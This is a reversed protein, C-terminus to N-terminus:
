FNRITCGMVEYKQGMVKGLKMKLIQCKPAVTAAPNGPTKTPASKGNACPKPHNLVVVPQNPSPLTVAQDKRLPMLQLASCDAPGGLLKALKSKSVTKTKKKNKGSIGVRVRKLSVTLFKPPNEPVPTAGAPNPSTTNEPVPPSLSPGPSDPQPPPTWTKKVKVNKPPARIKLVKVRKPPALTKSVDVHKPPALNNDVNVQEPPSHTKNIQVHQPPTLTNVEVQQPPALTTNVEVHEPPAWNKVVKDHEPPSYTKIQIQEPPSYTQNVQIQEPPSYTKNVQIQEPPSYTKNVQIQEPPSYTKNVQIHEPPALTTNVKIATKCKKNAKAPAGKGKKAAAGGRVEQDEEVKVSDCIKNSSADLTLDKSEKHAQLGSSMKSQETRVSKIKLSDCGASNTWEAMVIPQTSEQPVSLQHSLSYVSSIVPFGEREVRVAETATKETKVEQPLASQPVHANSTHTQKKAPSPEASSSQEPIFTKSVFKDKCENTMRVQPPAVMSPKLPLLLTKLNQTLPNTLEMTKATGSGHNVSVIQPMIQMYNMMLAELSSPPGPACRKREEVGNLSIGTSLNEPLLTGATLRSALMSSMASTANKPDGVSIFNRSIKSPVAADLNIVESPRKASSRQDKTAQNPFCKSTNVQVLTNREKNMHNKNLLRMGAEPAGNPCKIQSLLVKSTEPVTTKGNKLVSENEQAVFRLRLEKTGDVTKVEAVEVMCGAPISVEEPLSVTLARNRQVHGNSAVGDGHNANSYYSSLSKLRQLNTDLTAGAASPPPVNVRVVPRQPSADAASSVSQSASSVSVRPIIQSPVKPIIKSHLRDIHKILCMRRMYVQGCHPCKFPSTGTHIQLHTQLEAESLSVQNCYFCYYETHEQAVHKKFVSVDTTTFRCKECRMVNPSNLLHGLSLNPNMVTSSVSQFSAPKM